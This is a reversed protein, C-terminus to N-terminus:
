GPQWTDQQVGAEFHSFLRTPPVTSAAINSSDFADDTMVGGSWQAAIHRTQPYDGVSSSIEGAREGLKTQPAIARHIYNRGAPAVVRSSAIPLAERAAIRVENPDLSLVGPERASRFGIRPRRDLHIGIASAYRRYQLFHSGVRDHGAPM